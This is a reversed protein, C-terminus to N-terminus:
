GKNFYEKIITTVTEIEATTMFPHMPLSLLTAALSEVVGLVLGNSEKYVEQKHCPVPYHLASYIDHGALYAKLNDREMSNECKLEYLHYVPTCGTDIFPVAVGTCAELNDKYKKAVSRRKTNWKDIHNLCTNLFLANVADLRSNYGVASYEYWSDDKRGVNGLCRAKNLVFKNNTIIAGGQGLGGLNKAPYFSFCGVDGFTGVKQGKFKAGIAQACDEIVFLNALKAVSMINDMNVPNGYLHVPIIAKTKRTIYNSINYDINYTLSNVDVFVPTAGVHTVALATAIFTNGPILVEDGPGIGLGALAFILADTGSGVGLAYKMNHYQAFNHEFLEVHPGGVFAGNTVIEELGVMLKPIDINSYQKKLDLFNVSM